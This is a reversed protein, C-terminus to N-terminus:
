ADTGESQLVRKVVVTPEISLMPCVATCRGCRKCRDDRWRVIYPLDKVSLEHNHDLRSAPEM